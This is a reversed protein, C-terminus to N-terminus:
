VVLHAVDVNVRVVDNQRGVRPAPGLPTTVLTREVLVFILSTSRNLQQDLRELLVSGPPIIQTNILNHRRNMVFYSNRSRQPAFNPTPNRTYYQPQHLQTRFKSYTEM